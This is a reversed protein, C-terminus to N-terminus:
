TCLRKEGATMPGPQPNCQRPQPVSTRDWDRTSTREVVFIPKLNSPQPATLMEGSGRSFDLMETVLHDTSPTLPNPELRLAHLRSSLWRVWNTAWVQADKEEIQALMSARSTKKKQHLTSLLPQMLTNM